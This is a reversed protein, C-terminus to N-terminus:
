QEVNIVEIESDISDKLTQEVFAKLTLSDFTIMGNNYLLNKHKSFLSIANKM